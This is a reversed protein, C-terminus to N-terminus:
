LANERRWKVLNNAYVAGYMICIILLGYGKTIIAFLAWVPQIAVGIAWGQWMGRGALILGLCGFIALIFSLWLAIM